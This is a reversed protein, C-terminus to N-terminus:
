KAKEEHEYYVRIQTNTLYHGLVSITNLSLGSKPLPRIDIPTGVILDVYGSRETVILWHRVIVLSSVLLSALIIASVVSVMFTTSISFCNLGATELLLTIDEKPSEGILSLGDVHSAHAGDKSTGNDSSERFLIGISEKEERTDGTPLISVM